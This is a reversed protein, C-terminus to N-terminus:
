DMARLREIERNRRRMREDAIRKQLTDYKLGSKRAIEGILGHREPQSFYEQVASEYDRPFLNPNTMATIRLRYTSLNFQRALDQLLQKQKKRGSPRWLNFLGVAARLDSSCIEVHDTKQLVSHGNPEGAQCVCRGPKRGDGFQERGVPLAVSRGGDEGTASRLALAM